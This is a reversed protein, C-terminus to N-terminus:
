IHILSLNSCQAMSVRGGTTDGFDSANGASSYTVYDITAIVSPTYGGGFIARTSSGSEGFSTARAESLDGFDTADGTTSVQVYDIVNSVAPAFGGGQVSRDGRIDNAMAAKYRGKIDWVNGM